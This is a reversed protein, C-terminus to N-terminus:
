FDNGKVYLIPNDANCPNDIPDLLQLTTSKKQSKRFM